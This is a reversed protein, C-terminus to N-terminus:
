LKEIGIERKTRRKDSWLANVRWISYLVETFRWSEREESDKLVQKIGSQEQEM